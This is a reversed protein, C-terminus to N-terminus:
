IAITSQETWLDKIILLGILLRRIWKRNKPHELVIWIRSIWQRWILHFWLLVLDLQVSLLSNNLCYIRVAFALMEFLDSALAPYLFLIVIKKIITFHPLLNGAEKIIKLRIRNPERKGNTEERKNRFM